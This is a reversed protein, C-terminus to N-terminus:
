GMKGAGRFVDADATLGLGPGTPVTIAGDKLKLPPDYWRGTRDVSGKYEQFKGMNPACSAFHLM